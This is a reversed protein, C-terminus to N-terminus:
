LMILIKFVSDLVDPRLYIGESILASVCNAATHTTNYVHGAYIDLAIKLNAHKQSIRM